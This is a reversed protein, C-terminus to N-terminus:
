NPEFYGAADIYNDFGYMSRALSHGRMASYIGSNDDFEDYILKSMAFSFARDASEVPLRVPVNERFIRSADAEAQAYIVFSLGVIAFLTLLSLVVILIIGRRSSAAASNRLLM